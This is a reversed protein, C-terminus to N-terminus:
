ATGPVSFSLTVAFSVGVPLGASVSLSWGSVLTAGAFKEIREILGKLMWDFSSKITADDRLGHKEVSSEFDSLHRCIVGSSRILVSRASGLAIIDLGTGSASALKERFYDDLSELENRASILMERLSGHRIDDILSRDRLNALGTIIGDFEDQKQTEGAMNIGRKKPGPEKM